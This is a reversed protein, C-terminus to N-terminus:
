EVLGKDHLAKVFTLVDGLVDGDDLAAAIQAVSRVGDILEWVRAATENLGRAIESGADLMVVHEGVRELTVGARRRPVFGSDM